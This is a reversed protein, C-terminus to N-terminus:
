NVKLQGGFFMFFDNSAPADHSSERMNFLLDGDANEDDDLWQCFQTLDAPHEDADNEGQRALTLTARTVYQQLLPIGNTCQTNYMPGPSYILVAHANDIRTHGGAKITANAPAIITVGNNFVFGKPMNIHTRPHDGIPLTFAHAITLDRGSKGNEIAIIERNYPANDRTNITATYSHTLTYANALMLQVGEDLTITIGNNGCNESAGYHCNPAVAYYVNNDEMFTKAHTQWHHSDLCAPYDHMNNRSATPAAPSTKKRWPYIIKPAHVTTTGRVIDQLLLAVFESKLFTRARPKYDDEADLTQVIGDSYLIIDDYDLKVMNFDEDIRIATQLLLRSQASLTLTNIASTLVATGLFGAVLPASLSLRSYDNAIITTSRHHEPLWGQQFATLALPTDAAFLVESDAVLSVTIGAPLVYEGVVTSLHAPAVIISAGATLTIRAYRAITIQGAVVTPMDGLIVSLQAVSDGLTVSLRAVSILTAAQASLFGATIQLNVTAAVTVTATVSVSIDVASPLLLSLPADTQGRGNVATHFEACHRNRGNIHTTINAAPPPYYGFFDKWAGIAARIEGLPSGAAPANHTQTIGVLGTYSNMFRGDSMALESFNIHIFNDYEDGFARIFVGNADANSEGDYSNFYQEADIDGHELSATLLFSESLRGSDSKGPALVVAVVQNNVTVRIDNDDEGPMLNIVTFWNDSVTGLRHFNLPAGNIAPAMNRSLAYWLNNGYGDRFQLGLGDSIEGDGQSLFRSRYPLRGFRSGSDLIGNTMNSGSGAAGCVPDQTGNLDNDSLTDPCPLMLMRPMITPGSLRAINFPRESRLLMYTLLSRRAAALINDSKATIANKELHLIREYVLEGTIGGGIVLVVFIILVVGRRKLRTLM